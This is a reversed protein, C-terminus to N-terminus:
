PSPTLDAVYLQFAGNRDSSWYIRAGDPSVWPDGDDAASDIEMTIAVPTDWELTAESRRAIWFGRRGLTGARTSDFYMTRLDASVFTSSDSQRSSVEEVVVPTGWPDNVALRTAVYIDADAARPPRNSTLFITLEDDSIAACCDDQISGLEAVLEPQSWPQGISARTARWIDSGRSSPRTSTLHMTLGDPSLEPDTDSAASSLEEVLVPESWPEELEARTTVYIDLDGDRDSAFYMELEDASLTPDRESGPADLGPIPPPGADIREFDVRGCAVLWMACM